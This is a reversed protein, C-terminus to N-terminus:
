EESEVIDGEEEDKTEAEAGRKQVIPVCMTHYLSPIKRMLPSVRQRYGKFPSEQIIASLDLYETSFFLKLFGVDVDQGEKVNFTWPGTRQKTGYGITWSKGAPLPDDVGEASGPQYFAHISLSSVNFIFMSVYLPVLTTNVIKFGYRTQM